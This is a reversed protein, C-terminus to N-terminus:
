LIQASKFRWSILDEVLFWKLVSDRHMLSGYCRHSSPCMWQAMEMCLIITPFPIYSLALINIVEKLILVIKQQFSTYWLNSSSLKITILNTAHPLMVVNSEIWKLKNVYIKINIPWICLYRFQSYFYWLESRFPFWGHVIFVWEKLSHLKFIVSVSTQM